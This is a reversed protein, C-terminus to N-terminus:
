GGPTAGVRLPRCGELPFGCAAMGVKLAAVARRYAEAFARYAAWWEVRQARSSAHVAPAATRKSETPRAHPDVRLIGAPGLVRGQAPWRAEATAVVECWRAQLEDESADAWMPPPSLEVVRKEAFDSLVPRRGRTAPSRASWAVLARHLGTRDYWVGILPRGATVAEVWPVGPWEFASRVLGAKTAQGALYVMREYLADDDLIPIDSSRRDWHCGPWDYLAGLEKSVNTRVHCTWGAKVEASRFGAVIHIHNCTGGAFYLRVDGAFLLMAQGIVGLLRRNAEPGPRLLFRSQACRWTLEVSEFESQQFRLRRGM